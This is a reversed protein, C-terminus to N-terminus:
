KPEPGACPAPAQEIVAFFLPDQSATCPGIWTDLGERDAGFPGVQLYTWLRGEADESVAEFLADAHEAVRLPELRVSRGPMPSRPPRPRPTWGPVPDGIPQGLDNTRATM